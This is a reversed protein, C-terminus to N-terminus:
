RSRASLAPSEQWEPAPPPVLRLCEAKVQDLLSDNSSMGEIALAFPEFVLRHAIVPIFLREIDTTDVFKRGEMLAWARAVRELALSARVSAGINVQDLERTARVLEVLWRLILRDVYVAETASRMEM